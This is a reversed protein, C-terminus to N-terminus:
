RHHWSACPLLSTLTASTERWWMAGLACVSANLLAAVPGSWLGCTFSPIDLETLTPFRVADFFTPSTFQSNYLTLTSLPTGASALSRFGAATLLETTLETLPLRMSAIEAASRDLIRGHLLRLPLKALHPALIVFPAEVPLRLSTLSTMEALFNLRLEFIAVSDSAAAVMNLSTPRLHRLGEFRPRLQRPHLVVARPWSAAAAAAVRLATCCRGFAIHTDSDVFSCILQQCGRCRNCRQECILQV